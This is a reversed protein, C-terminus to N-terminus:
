DAIAQIKGMTLRVMLSLARSSSSGPWQAKPRATVVHQLALSTSNSASASSGGPIRQWAPSTIRGLMSHMREEGVVAFAEIQAGSLMMM